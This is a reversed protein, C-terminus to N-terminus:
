NIEINFRKETDIISDELDIKNWLIHKSWFGASFPDKWNERVKHRKIWNMKIKDDKHELFTSAGKSGFHLTKKIKLKPNEVIVKYRKDEKNSPSLEAILM